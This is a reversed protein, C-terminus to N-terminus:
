ISKSQYHSQRWKLLSQQLRQRSKEEEARRHSSYNFPSKVQKIFRKSHSM